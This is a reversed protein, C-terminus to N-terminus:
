CLKVVGGLPSVQLILPRTLWWCGSINLKKSYIALKVQMLLFLGCTHLGQIVSWQEQTLSAWKSNTLWHNMIPEMPDPKQTTCWLNHGYFIPLIMAVEACPWEQITRSSEGRPLPKVLWCLSWISKTTKTVDTSPQHLSQVMFSFWRSVLGKSHFWTLTDIPTQEFLQSLFM